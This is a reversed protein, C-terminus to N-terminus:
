TKLWQNLEFSYVHKKNFINELNFKIVVLRQRRFETKLRVCIFHIPGPKKIM